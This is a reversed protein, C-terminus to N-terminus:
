HAILVRRRPVLLRAWVNKLGCCADLIRIAATALARAIRHTIASVTRYAIAGLHSGNLNDRLLRRGKDPTGTPLRLLLWIAIATVRAESGEDRPRM